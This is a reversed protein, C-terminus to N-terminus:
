SVGPLEVLDGAATPDIYLVVGGMEPVDELRFAERDTPAVGPGAGDPGILVPVDGGCLEARLQELRGILEGLTM